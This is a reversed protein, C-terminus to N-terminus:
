VKLLVMNGNEAAKRVSMVLRKTEDSVQAVFELPIGDASVGRVDSEGINRASSGKM